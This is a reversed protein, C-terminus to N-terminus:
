VTENTIKRIEAALRLVRKTERRIEVLRSIVPRAARRRASASADGGKRAMRKSYKSQRRSLHSIWLKLVTKFSVLDESGSMAVKLLFGARADASENWFATAASIAELADDADMGPYPLPLLGTRGRSALVMLVNLEDLDKRLKAEHIEYAKMARLLHDDM